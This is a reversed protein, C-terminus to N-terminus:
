ELLKHYREDAPTQWIPGLIAEPKSLSFNEQCCFWFIRSGVRKTDARQTLARLNEKRKETKTVTLVRFARIGLKQIHRGQKWYEWYARMKQLFRNSPVTSRDAELFFYKKQNNLRICFFGDPVVAARVRRGRIDRIMVYDRMGRYFEPRWLLLDANTQNKLALTIAARFNSVMLTHEIFGAKIKLNKKTWNIEDREVSLYEALVDAGKNGLAYVMRHDEGLLYAAQHPPRDLFGHHFLKQLRRLIGRESGGVLARIQGSNLSRYDYVLKIIRIDRPQLRIPSIATKKRKFRPLAKPM